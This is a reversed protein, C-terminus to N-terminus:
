GSLVEAMAGVVYGVLAGVGSRVATAMDSGRGLEFAVAGILPGVILGFPGALLLGLVLGVLAGLIGWRSAGFARAGLLNGLLNLGMGLMGLLVFVVLQIPGVIRVGTGIAFMAIGALVLPMGPLGPVVTGFLGVLVIILAVILLQLDSM